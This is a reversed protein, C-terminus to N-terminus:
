RLAFPRLGSASETASLTSRPIAAGWRPLSLAIERLQRFRRTAEETRATDTVMVAPHVLPDIINEGWNCLLAAVLEGLSTVATEEAFCMRRIAWLSNITNALSTFCLGFVNYRAGGAYIDQGKVLCDNIFLNLLPSPCVDEMRGFDGVTSEMQRAFLWEFHKLFVAELEDYDKFKSAPKSRFSMNKGLLDVPGASQISRGQNLAYELPQLLTM